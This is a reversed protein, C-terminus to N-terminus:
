LVAKWMAVHERASREWTRTAALQSGARSLQARVDEDRDVSVLAAAIAEIDLPDVQLATRVDEGPIEGPLAQVSPVTTSTVVPVGLTMAELPPLGYGESLPVYVFGRAGQYLAALLPATVPGTSVVGDPVATESDGANRWGRPGVMVLSRPGAFSGTAERWAEFLRKLNKRPELTGVTLWYSGDVGHTGLLARAGAPDPPALHDCGLPVVFVKSVPAGAAILDAGVVESPTMFGSAHTLARQFAAEHWRRGRRTTASPHRRWALDHVSVVLKAPLHNWKARLPPQALSVSHVLDFGGRVPLLGLDWAQSLFRTGVRARNLPFGLQGLPDVGNSLAARSPRSALLELDFGATALASPQVLLGDLLGRAYTGIGGPVRRRLQDVVLLVRDGPPDTANL